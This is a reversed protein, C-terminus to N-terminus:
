VGGKDVKKMYFCKDSQHELISSFKKSIQVEKSVLKVDMVSFVSSPELM